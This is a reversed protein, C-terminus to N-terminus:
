TSARVSRDASLPTGGRGRWELEDFSPEYGRARYDAEDFDREGREGYRVHAYAPYGAIAAVRYQGKCIEENV